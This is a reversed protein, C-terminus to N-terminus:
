KIARWLEEKIKIAKKVGLGPIKTAIDQPDAELVKDIYEYEAKIQMAYADGIGKIDTLTSLNLEQREDEQPEQMDEEDSTVADDKEDYPLLMEDELADQIRYDKIEDDNLKIISGRPYIRGKYEMKKRVDFKNM